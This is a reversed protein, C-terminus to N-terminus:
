FNSANMAILTVMKRDFMKTSRSGMEVQLHGLLSALAPCDIETAWCAAAGLEAHALMYLSEILDTCFLAAGIEAPEPLHGAEIKARFPPSLLVQSLLYTYNANCYDERWDFVDDRVTSALGIADWCDTLAPIREPTGNLMALGVCNIQAFAIKGQAIHKFEDLSFPRVTGGYMQHEDLMAQSMLGMRREVESWFPSDAPFLQSLLRYFHLLVHQIALKAAAPATLPEDIIQDLLMVYFNLSNTALALTRVQSPHVAPFDSAIYFPLYTSKFRWLSAHAEPPQNASHLSLRQGWSLFFDTLIWELETSPVDEVAEPRLQSLHDLLIKLDFSDPAKM